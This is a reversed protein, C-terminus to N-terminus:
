IITKTCGFGAMMNKVKEVNIVFLSFFFFFLQTSYANSTVSANVQSRETLICPLDTSVKSHIWSWQWHTGGELVVQHKGDAAYHLTLNCHLM